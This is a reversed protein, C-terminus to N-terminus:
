ESPADEAPADEAATVNEAPADASPADEVPADERPSDEDAPADEAPADEVPADEGPGDEGPGDEAPADELPADEAPADEAPADEAPADEVPADESPADEAPADEAPADETPADEAPADEAPADEAPADEAPADEAPADEVPTDAPADESPTDAPADEAPADDAPADDEPTDADDAPTDADEEPSDADEEPSDADEEPSDADEEPSDADEEPSDADEEPSDATTDADEEEAATTPLTVSLETDPPLLVADIVHVVGNSTSIDSVIVTVDNVRKVLHSRRSGPSRFRRTKVTSSGEAATEFPGGGRFARGFTRLETDPLVHYLLINALAATDIELAALTDAPLANFARNTPAFVTFPGPGRLTDELGAAQVFQVLKTLGYINATDVIDPQPQAAYFTQPDVYFPGWVLWKRRRRLLRHLNDFKSEEQDAGDAKVENEEKQINSIRLSSGMAVAVAMAFFLLRSALKKNM